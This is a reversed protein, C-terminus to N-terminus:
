RLDDILQDFSRIRRNPMKELTWGLKQIQKVFEGRMRDTGWGRFGDGAVMLVKGAVSRSRSGAALIEAVGANHRELQDLIEQRRKGNAWTEASWTKVEVFLADDVESFAAIDISGREGYRHGRRYSIGRGSRLDPAGKFFRERFTKTQVTDRAAREGLLGVVKSALSARAGADVVRGEVVDQLVRWSPNAEYHTFHEVFDADFTFRRAFEGHLKGTHLKGAIWTVDAHGRVHKHMLTRLLKESRTHKYIRKLARREARTMVEALRVFERADDPLMHVFQKRLGLLSRSQRNRKHQKFARRAVRKASGLKHIPFVNLLLDAAGEPAFLAAAVALPALAAGAQAAMEDAVQVRHQRLRYVTLEDEPIPPPVQAALREEILADLEIEIEDLQQKRPSPAQDDVCGPAMSLPALALALACVFSLIQERM